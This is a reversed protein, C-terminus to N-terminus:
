RRSIASAKPMTRPVTRDGYACPVQIPASCWREGASLALNERAQDKMTTTRHHKRREHDTHRIEAPAAIEADDASRRNV